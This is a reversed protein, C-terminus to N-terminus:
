QGKLEEIHRRTYNADIRVENITKDLTNAIKTLEAMLADQKADRSLSEAKDELRSKDVRDIEAANLGIRSNADGWALAIGFILLCIQLVQGVSIKPDITVGGVTM